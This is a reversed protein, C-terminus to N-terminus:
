SCSDPCPCVLCPVVVCEGTPCDEDTACGPLCRKDNEECGSCTYGIACQDASTCPEGADVSGPRFRQGCAALTLVACCLILRAASIM